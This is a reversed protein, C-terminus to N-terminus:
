RSGDAAREGTRPKESCRRSRSGGRGINQEDDDVLHAVRRDERGADAVGALKEGLEHRVGVGAPRGAHQMPREFGDVAANQELRVVEIRGSAIDIPKDALLAMFAEIVRDRESKGETPKPPAPRRPARAM